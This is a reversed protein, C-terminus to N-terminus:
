SSINLTIFSIQLLTFDPQFQNKTVKQLNM